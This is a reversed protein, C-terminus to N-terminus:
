VRPRRPTRPRSLTPPTALLCPGTYTACAQEAPPTILQKRLHPSVSPRWTSLNYIPRTAMGWKQVPEHPRNSWAYLKRLLPPLFGSQSRCPQLSIPLIQM